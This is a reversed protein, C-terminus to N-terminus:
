DNGRLFRLSPCEAWCWRCLHHTGFSSTRTIAIRRDNSRQAPIRGIVGPQNSTAHSTRRSDSILRGIPHNTRASSRLRSSHTLMSVHSNGKIQDYKGFKKAEATTLWGEVGGLGNEKNLGLGVRWGKDEESMVEGAVMYGGVLDAKVIESNVKEPVLTMEVRAALKNTESPPYQSAFSQSATPFLNLVKATYYQGPQFLDGLDPAEAEDESEAHSGTSSSTEQSLLRTLTNSIETIPVHALLNNPLSLILHLPLVTHVRALVRTGTVLRQKTLVLLM